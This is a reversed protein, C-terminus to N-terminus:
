DAYIYYPSMANRYEWLIWKVNHEKHCNLDIYRRNNDNDIMLIQWNISIPGYEHDVTYGNVVDWIRTDKSIPNIQNITYIASFTMCDEAFYIKEMCDHIEDVLKYTEFEAKEAEKVKSYGGFIMITFTIVLLALGKMTKMM